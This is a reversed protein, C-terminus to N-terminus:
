GLAGKRPKGFREFSGTIVVREGAKLFDHALDVLDMDGTPVTRIDGTVAFDQFCLRYRAEDPAGEDSGDPNTAGEPASVETLRALISLRRGLGQRLASSLKTYTVSDPDSYM